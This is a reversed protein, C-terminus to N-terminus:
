KRSIDIVRGLEERKDKLLGALKEFEEKSIYLGGRVGKYPKKRQLVMEIFGFAETSYIFPAWMVEDVGPLSRILDVCEQSTILDVTVSEGPLTYQIPM